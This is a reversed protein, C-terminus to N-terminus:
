LRVKFVLEAGEPLPSSLRITRSDVVVYDVEPYALLGNIYVDLESRGPIYELERLVFDTQGPSGTAYEVGLHRRGRRFIVAM